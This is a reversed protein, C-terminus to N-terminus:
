ISPNDGAIDMSCFVVECLRPELETISYGCEPCAFNASFKLQQFNDAPDISDVIAIGDTLHLATEFSETLRLKLDPRVKFRDVVVEINFQWKGLQVGM